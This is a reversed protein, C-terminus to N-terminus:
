NRGSCISKETTEVRTHTGTTKTNQRSISSVSIGFLRGYKMGLQMMIVIMWDCVNKRERLKIVTLWTSLTFDSCSETLIFM